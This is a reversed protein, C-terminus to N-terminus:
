YIHLLRKMKKKLRRRSHFVLKYFFTMSLLLEENKRVRKAYFSVIAAVDEPPLDLKEFAMIQKKTSCRSWKIRNIDVMYFDYGNETKDVLFNGINFDQFNVESQFLAYAFDAFSEYLSTKASANDELMSVFEGLTPYPLYESVLWCTQYVSSKKEVIYAVPRATKFGYDSLRGAYEASRKAKNSRVYSYILRNAFTARRFQKVVYYHGDYHTMVVLNRNDCFVHDMPYGGSPISTIWDRLHEYEPYIHIDFM